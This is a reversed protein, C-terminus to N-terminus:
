ALARSAEEQQAAEKQRALAQAAEEQRALLCARAAEQAQAAEEQRTEALDTSISAIQLSNTQMSNTLATLSEQLKIQLSNFHVSNATLSEKLKTIGIATEEQIAKLESFSLFTAATEEQRARTAHENLLQRYWSPNSLSSLSLHALPTASNGM